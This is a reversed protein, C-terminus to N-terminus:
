APRAPPAGAGPPPPGAEPRDREDALRVDLRTGEDLAAAPAREDPAVAGGQRADVAGGERVDLVAAGRELELSRRYFGGGAEELAPIARAALFRLVEKM